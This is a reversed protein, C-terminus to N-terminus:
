FQFFDRVGVGLAVGGAFHFVPRDRQNVLPHGNNRDCRVVMHEFFHDAIHLFHFRSASRHDRQRITAVVLKARNEIWRAVEDEFNRPGGLQQRRDHHGHRKLQERVVDGDTAAAVDVLRAIERLTYSYFLPKCNKSLRFGSCRSATRCRLPGRRIRAPAPDPLVRTMVLRMAYRTPSPWACDCSIRATVKVFLAASSIRARTSASRPSLQPRMHTEVKWESHARRRRRSAGAIPRERSKTM